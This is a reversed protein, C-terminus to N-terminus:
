EKAVRREESRLIRQNDRELLKIAFTIGFLRSILTYRLVKFRQPCADENTYSKWLQYDELEDAAIKALVEKNHKDRTLRSLEKYITHETVEKCQAERIKAKIGPAVLTNDKLTTMCRVQNQTRLEM